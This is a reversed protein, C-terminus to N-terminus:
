GTPPAHRQETWRVGDWWRMATGGPEPYWGPPPAPTRGAAALVEDRKVFRWILAGIIGVLVVVIVWMTKDTGAARFQQEPLKAVEVIAMIWYVISFVWLALFAVFFLLLIGAGLFDM